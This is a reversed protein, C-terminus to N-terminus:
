LGNGVEIPVEAGFLATRDNDRAAWKLLTLVSPDVRRQFVARGNVKVAIPQSFDFEAPSLLLTFARVGRTSAEVTNGKRELDVRGSEGERWFIPFPEPAGALLNSDRLTAEGDVRGLGDIILWSMRNYRDTRETEWSLRDPLPDRPHQNAFQEFAEREEPWWDTNHGAKAQVHFVVEAGLARLHEVYPKVRGAPYLRDLGGNVVFFPRNRANGPFMQGDAGVEPNGLVMMHGNLPLFNAWPTPERFAMFYVGTGGDSIGTLYIRNEDINYTRKLRDLIRALNDVQTPFWWESRDWGRPHVYIQDPDGPIRGIGERGEASPRAVGGHLQVRVQYGRAPDYNDPVTFAYAHELGETTGAAPVRHTSRQLGRPVDAAYRRGKRLRALADEFTVGTRVVEEARQAAAVADPASWFAAFARDVAAPDPAARASAMLSVLAAVICASKVASTM